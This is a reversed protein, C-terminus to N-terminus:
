YLRQHEFHRGVEQFGLESMADQIKQRRSFSEVVFDLDKLVYKGKSYISVASGGTLVVDIGQARLHSQIYAALEGQNMEAIPKM